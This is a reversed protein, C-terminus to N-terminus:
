RPSRATRDPATVAPLMSAQWGGGLGKLLLVSATMRRTLIGVAARENTLAANQASTVELYSVLGGRYRNTAQTLSREAADVARGQIAGEQDLIRLTALQDEVERFAQLVSERYIASAQEFAARAQDAAARRRGGDFVHVLAAPGIAWFSSAGALWSGFASSEFGAAGSLTLLPYYAATAV